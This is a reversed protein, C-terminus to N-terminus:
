GAVQSPILTNLTARLYRFSRSVRTARDLDMAATLRPQHITEVYRGYREALWGKGRQTEDPLEPASPDGAVLWAEYMRVALICGVRRHPLFGALQRRLEPGLSAACDDDADIVLLVAGAGGRDAINAEAIRAYHELINPLVIQQRKVRVPRAVELTPQIRRLLLPIAEFEGHGEVIPAIVFRSM